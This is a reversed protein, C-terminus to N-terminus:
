LDLETRVAMGLTEVVYPKKLYAGAGLAQAAKVRDSESYGSVIIAKQGPRIAQIAQYTELGDMGPDMIMDLVILAATNNKLYDLAAEGSEVAEVAYGLGELIQSAIERQEVVDDVILISEGHGKIEMQPHEEAKLDNTERTIPLYVQIETGIGPSSQVDIYGHHDQVAGWVVAMGLGTGSRGMIKNTYFPEFIQGIDKPDIGMGDDEVSLLIYDGEYVDSYGRIPRDVYCNSTSIFVTGRGKIAEAANSVLNMVTKKLHLASGRLNLLTSELKSFFQVGTHISKLKMFEPSQLYEKVVANFDLVETTTVGRRALTLLDEVTAAAKQGSESIKKLPEYLPDDAKMRSLLFEPYSVIGLMVNNLDHAVGGALLGLAEMKKSRALRERLERREAEITKRDTIDQVVGTLKSAQGRENRTLEARAHLYIDCNDSQRRAMFEIDLCRRKKLVKAMRAQLRDFDPVLSQFVVLSCNHEKFKLGFINFLEESFWFTRSKYNYEWNGLHAISQAYKLLAESKLLAKSAAQASQTAEGPNEKERNLKVQEAMHKDQSIERYIEYAHAILGTTLCIFLLRLTRGIPLIHIALNTDLFFVLGLLLFLFGSWVLGEKRGLLLFVMLPYFVVWLIGEGTGAGTAVYFCVVSFLLLANARYIVVGSTFRPLGLISALLILAATFDVWGCAPNEELHNLLGFGVFFVMGSFALLFFLRRKRTDEGDDCSIYQHLMLRFKEMQIPM